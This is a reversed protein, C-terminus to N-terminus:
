ELIRTTLFQGGGMGAHEVEVLNWSRQSLQQNCFLVEKKAVVVFAVLVVVFFM